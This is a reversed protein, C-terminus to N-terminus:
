ADPRCKQGSNLPSITMVDDDLKTAGEAIASRDVANSHLRLPVAIDCGVGAEAAWSGLMVTSAGFCTALGCRDTTVGCLGARAVLVTRDTFM